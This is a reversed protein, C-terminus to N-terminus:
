IINDDTKDKGLLHINGYWVIEEDIIAFDQCWDGTIALFIGNQRMEDLLQMQFVPNDFYFSDPDRTLVTIEVGRQQLAITNDILWRVKAGSLASASILIRKKAENIDKVFVAKYSDGDFISEAVQKEDQIDTCIKYGIKKYTKLRNKYMNGFMPIHYDVYDYIIVSKKGIYDRNIRGAYQEVVGSKSVPTAMILTDLRSFDFGEGILSGTAVLILSEHVSVKGM